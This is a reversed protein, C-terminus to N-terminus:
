ATAHLHDLWLGEYEIREVLDRLRSLGPGSSYIDWSFGRSHGPLAAADALPVGGRCDEDVDFFSIKGDPLNQAVAIPQLLLTQVV